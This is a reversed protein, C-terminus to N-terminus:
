KAKRAEEVMKKVDELITPANYVFGDKISWKVGGVKVMKGDELEFVGGPYLYKFNKLPNKDILILDALFGERIRGLKDEMGLIKANNVTAHKIVDIPHFGAEQHLELERILAFGYIQYIFGADDGAGVIGGMDAFDRVAKMWIRFNERWAVEDETTWSWFYSGHFRPNPQFYEELTPHLYDKFWPQNQARFLDRNAEYIAFTPCWAVGKEVLTQLVKRLKEPDAERWLRGAYGFRDYENNYNYWYPFNQTGHLAADPVGYWHEISTVGTEAMDWADVEGTLAAHQAVRLGLKHAEEMLAKQIDRDMGFIKLGDGGAKKIERVRQRAEEPTRGGARMYIFMRPAAIEGTQSKSRLISTKAYDSGVDRVTTIGCALYIKNQYEFPQPKGGREDHLHVHINILGPLVYMGTGDLIHAEGQYAENRRPFSISEILNNKLIIDVPGYPPTGKGDIVVVNRIILKEYRKGSEVGRTENWLGQVLFLCFFVLLTVRLPNKHINM